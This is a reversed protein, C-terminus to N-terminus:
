CLLEGSEGSTTLRFHEVHFVARRFRSVKHFAPVTIALAAALEFSYSEVASACCDPMAIARM